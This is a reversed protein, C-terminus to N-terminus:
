LVCSAAEDGERVTSVDNEPNPPDNTGAIRFTVTEYTVDGDSTRYVYDFTEVLEDSEGLRKISGEDPTYAMIKQPSDDNTFTLTLNGNILQIVQGSEPSTTTTSSGTKDDTVIVEVLTWEDVDDKPQLPAVVSKQPALEIDQVTSVYETDPLVNVCHKGTAKIRERNQGDGDDSSSSVTYDFCFNNIEDAGDVTITGDRRIQISAGSKDDILTLGDVPDVTYPVDRFIIRSIFDTKPSLQLDGDRSGLMSMLNIEGPQGLKTRSRTEVPCPGLLILDDETEAPCPGCTGGLDLADQVFDSSICLDWLHGECQVNRFVEERPLCMVAGYGGDCVSSSRLSPLSTCPNVPCVVSSRTSQVGGSGKSDQEQTGGKSDAVGELWRRQKQNRSFINRRTADAKSDTEGGNNRYNSQYRYGGKGKGSSYQAYYM